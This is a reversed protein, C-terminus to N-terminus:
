AGRARTHEWCTSCGLGPDVVRLAMTQTLSWSGPSVLPCCTELLVMLVPQRGTVDM